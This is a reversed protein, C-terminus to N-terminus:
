DRWEFRWVKEIGYFAGTYKGILAFTIIECRAYRPVKGYYRKLVRLGENLVVNANNPLLLYDGRNVLMEKGLKIIFIFLKVPVIIM